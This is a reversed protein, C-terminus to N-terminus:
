VWGIQARPRMTLSNLCLEADPNGDSQWGAFGLGSFPGAWFCSVITFVGLRSDISFVRSAFDGKQGRRGCSAPETKGVPCSSTGRPEERRCPVRSLPEWEMRSWRARDDLEPPLPVATLTQGGTQSQRLLRRALRSSETLQYVLPTTCARHWEAHAAASLWTSM